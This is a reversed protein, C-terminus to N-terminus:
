RGLQRQLKLERGLEPQEERRAIPWYRGAGAPCDADASVARGRETVDDFRGADRQGLDTRDANVSGQCLRRM